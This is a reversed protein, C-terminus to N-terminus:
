QFCQEGSANDCIERWGNIQWRSGNWKLEVSTVRFLYYHDPCCSTPQNPTGFRDLYGQVAEHVLQDVTKGTALYVKVLRSYQEQTIRRALSVCHEVFVGPSRHAAVQRHYKPALTLTIHKRKLDHPLPKPGPKKGRRKRKKDIM